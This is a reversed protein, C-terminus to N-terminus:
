GHNPRRYRRGWRPADADPVVASALAHQWVLGELGAAMQSSEEALLATAEAVASSRDALQFM